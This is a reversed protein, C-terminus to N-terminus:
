SDGGEVVPVTYTSVDGDDSTTVSSVSGRAEHVKVSEGEHHSIGRVSVVDDKKHVYLIAGHDKNETTKKTYSFGLRLASWQEDTDENTIKAAITHEEIEASFGDSQIKQRVTKVPGTPLLETRLQKAEQGSLRTISLNEKQHSTDKAASPTAIQSLGAGIATSGAISQLVQRRNPNM